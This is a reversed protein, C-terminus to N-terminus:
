LDEGNDGPALGEPAIGCFYLFTEHLGAEPHKKLYELMSAEVMYQRPAYLVCSYNGSMEYNENKAAGFRDRVIQTYEEHKTM